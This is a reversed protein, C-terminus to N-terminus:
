REETKKFKKTGVESERKREKKREKEREKKRERKRIKIKTSKECKRENQREINLIGETIKYRQRKNKDDEKNKESM